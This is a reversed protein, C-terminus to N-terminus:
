FGLNIDKKIKEAIAELVWIRITINKDIAIKKIHNHTIRDLDISLRKIDLEAM